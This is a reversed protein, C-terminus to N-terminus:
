IKKRLTSVLQPGWKCATPGVWDCIWHHCLKKKGPYHFSRLNARIASYKWTEMHMQLTYLALQVKLKVTQTFFITPATAGKPSVHCEKSCVAPQIWWWNVTVFFCLVLCAVYTRTVYINHRRPMVVTSLTNKLCMDSVVIYCSLHYIYLAINLRTRKVITTSFVTLIAYESQTNTAKTLWCSFRMRRIKNDHTAEGARGLNKVNEWLLVIKPFINSFVLLTNQNERWRKNWVNWELFFQALYSPLLINTKLYLV